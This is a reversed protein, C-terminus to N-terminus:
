LSSWSDGGDLSLEYKDLETIGPTFSFNMLRNQSDYSFATPPSVFGRVPYEYYLPTSIYNSETEKVRVGISNEVCGTIGINFPKNTLLNWTEGKNLTFEYDFINPYFSSFEFDITRSQEDFNIATPPVATAKTEEWNNTVNLKVTVQGGQFRKFESFSNFYLH